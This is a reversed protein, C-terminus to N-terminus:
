DNLLSKLYAAIAARDQDSLKAMNEQVAVMSGGVTDFEPTFGSELYYAIDAATWGSINEGGPTINPV